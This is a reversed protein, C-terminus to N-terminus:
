STAPTMKTCMTIHLENWSEVQWSSVTNDECNIIIMHSTENKICAVIVLGININLFRICHYYQCLLYNCVYLASKELKSCTTWFFRRCFQLFTLSPQMCVCAPKELISCITWIFHRCFQLLFTLLCISNACAWTEGALIWFACCICINEPM